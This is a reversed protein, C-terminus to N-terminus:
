EILDLAGRPLSEALHVDLAEDRTLTAALRCAMETVAEPVRVGPDELRTRGFLRRISSANVRNSEVRAILHPLVWGQVSPASVPRRQARGLGDPRGAPTTRRESRARAEITRMEREGNWLSPIGRRDSGCRLATRRTLFPRGVHTEEVKARTSESARGCIESCHEAIQSHRVRISPSSAENSTLARPPFVRSSWSVLTQFGCERLASVRSISVSDFARNPLYEHTMPVGGDRASPARLSRRWWSLRARLALRGTCIPFVSM